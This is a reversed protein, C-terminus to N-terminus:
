TTYDTCLDPYTTCIDTTSTPTNLNDLDHQLKNAANNIIAMAIFALVIAVLSLSTGWWAQKSNTAVNKRCRVIGLIGFILGLVGLILPVIYFLAITFLGIVVGTIGLILSALGFGNKPQAQQYNPPAPYLERGQIITNDDLM